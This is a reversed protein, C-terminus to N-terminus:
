LGTFRNYVYRITRNRFNESTAMLKISMCILYKLSPYRFKRRRKLEHLLHSFHYEDLHKDSVNEITRAINIFAKYDRVGSRSSIRNGDFRIRVLPENIWIIKSRSVISCLFVTDCYNRGTNWNLFTDHIVTLNYAYSSFPAVGGAAATLYKTVLESPQKLCTFDGVGAFLTSSGIKENLSNIFVGNTGIAGVDPNLKFYLLIKELYNFEMIDDDHFMVLYQTKALKRAYSFHDAVGVGPYWSIYEISPYKAQVIRKLSYDTSNDSIIFNFNGTSQSLISEIAVIALEPRNRSMLVVTIENM